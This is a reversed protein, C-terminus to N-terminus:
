EKGSKGETKKREKKKKKNRPNLQNKVIFMFGLSSIGSTTYNGIATFILVLSLCSLLFIAFVFINPL